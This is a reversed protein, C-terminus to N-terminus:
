PEGPRAGFFWFKSPRYTERNWDILVVCGSPKDALRTAIGFRDRKGGQRM